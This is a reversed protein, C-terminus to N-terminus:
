RERLLHQLWKMVAPVSLTAHPHPTFLTASTITDTHDHAHTHPRSHSHGGEDATAGAPQPTPLGVHAVTDLDFASVGLIEECPIDSHTTPKIDACANLKRLVARVGALHRPSVLDCKNLLIIDAAALQQQAEVTRPRSALPWWTSPAEPAAAAAAACQEAGLHWLINKADVVTVVADLTYRSRAMRSSFLTAVLPGPDAMGSTEIVVYDFRGDRLLDVLKALCRELEDGPGGASCCMCGNALVMVGDGREDKANKLLKHDVSISGFENEIVVVKLGHGERNALIHNVLTTKGSGLFGTIITVPTRKPAKASISLTSAKDDSAKADEQDAASGSAALEATLSSIRSARCR